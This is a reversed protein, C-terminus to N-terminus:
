GSFVRFTWSESFDADKTLVIFGHHRAFDWVESDHREHMQLNFVHDSGPFLDALNRALSPATNQDFLLKM